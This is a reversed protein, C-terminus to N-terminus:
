PAGHRSRCIRAQMSGAHTRAACGARARSPRIDQDRYPPRCWGATLSRIASGASREGDRAGDDGEFVAENLEHQTRLKGPWPLLGLRHFLVERGM